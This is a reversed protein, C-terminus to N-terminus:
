PYKALLRDLTRVVFSRARHSLDRVICELMDTRYSVSLARLVIREDLATECREDITLLAMSSFKALPILQSRVRGASLLRSSASIQFRQERTADNVADRKTVVDGEFSALSYM